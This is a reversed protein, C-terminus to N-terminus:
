NELSVTETESIIPPQEAKTELGALFKKLSEIAKRIAYVQRSLQQNRKKANWLREFRKGVAKNYALKDIRLIKQRQLEAKIQQHAQNWILQKEKGEEREKIELKEESQQLTIKGKEAVWSLRNLIPEEKELATATEDLYQVNCLSCLPHEPYRMRNGCGPCTERNNVRKGTRKQKEKIGDM